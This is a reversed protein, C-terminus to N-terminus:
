GSILKDIQVEKLNFSKDDIIMDYTLKDFIIHHFKVGHRLLWNTTIDLDDIRRSTYLIIQHGQTYLYNVISINSLNPTRTAYDWGDIEITLIGDIDVAIRM